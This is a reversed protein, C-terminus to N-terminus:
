FQRRPFERQRPRQAASDACAQAAARPSTEVFEAPQKQAEPGVPIEPPPPPNDGDDTAVVVPPPAVIPAAPQHRFSAIAVASLHVAIATIMAIAVRRKAAARNLMPNNM